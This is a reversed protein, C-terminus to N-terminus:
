VRVVSPIHPDADPATVELSLRRNHTISLLPLRRAARPRRGRPLARGDRGACRSACTPTTACLRRGVTLLHERRVHLTAEGRHVVLGRVAADYGPGGEGDLIEVLVDAAEDFYAGYPRAAFPPM